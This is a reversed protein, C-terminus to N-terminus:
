SFHSLVPMPNLSDKAQRAARKWGDQSARNFALNVQRRHERAADLKQAREALLVGPDGRYYDVPRLYHLASHRRECNYYEVARGIEVRARGDEDFEDGVLEKCTRIGREVIGNEQPCHPHIRHHEIGQAALYSKFDRSIFAPGNDTQISPQRKRGPVALAREIEATTASEDMRWCLEWHVVYRSYEDMLYFLYRWRGVVMLYTWDLLWREDPLQARKRGSGSSVAARRARWGPVLGKENLVRYVTAPSACVIGADTLEYALARHRSDPFALAYDLVLMREEPLLERVNRRMLRADDRVDGEVTPRARWRYFRAPAIGLGTLIARVSWGSRQRTAEVWAAIQGFNESLARPHNSL